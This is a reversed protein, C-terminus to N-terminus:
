STTTLECSVRIRKTLMQVANVMKATAFDATRTGTSIFPDGKRGNVINIAVKVSWHFCLPRKPGKEYVITVAKVARNDVFIRLACAGWEKRDVVRRMMDNVM